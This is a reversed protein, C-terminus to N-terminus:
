VIMSLNATLPLDRQFAGNVYGQKIYFPKVYNILLITSANLTVAPSLPNSQQLRVVYSLDDQAEAPTFGCIVGTQTNFRLGAFLKPQISWISESEQQLGGVIQPQLQTPCGINTNVPLSIT